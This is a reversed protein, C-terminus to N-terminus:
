FKLRMEYQCECLTDCDIRKRLDNLRITCNKMWATTNPMEFDEVEGGLEKPGYDDNPVGYCPV